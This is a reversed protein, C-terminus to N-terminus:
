SSFCSMAREGISVSWIGFRGIGEFYGEGVDAFFASEADVEAFGGREGGEDGLLARSAKRSLEESVIEGHAGQEDEQCGGGGKRLDLGLRGVGGFIEAANTGDRLLDRPGGARVAGVEASDVGAAGPDGSLDGVGCSEVEAGDYSEGGVFSEQHGRTGAVLGADVVGGVGTPVPLELEGVAIGFAEEVGHNEPVWGVAYDEAIGDGVCVPM